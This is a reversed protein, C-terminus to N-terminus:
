YLINGVARPKGLPLYPVSLLDMKASSATTKEWTNSGGHAWRFYQVFPSM